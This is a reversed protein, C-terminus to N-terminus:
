IFIISIVGNNGMVFKEPVSPSLQRVTWNLIFENCWGFEVIGEQKWLRVYNMLLLLPSVPCLAWFLPIYCRKRRCMCLSFAASWRVKERRRCVLRQGRDLSLFFTQASAGQCYSSPDERGNTSHLFFFFLAADWGRALTDPRCCPLLLALVVALEICASPLPQVQVM